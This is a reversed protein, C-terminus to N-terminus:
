ALQLPVVSTMRELGVAAVVESAVAIARPDEMLFVLSNFREDAGFGVLWARLQRRDPFGLLLHVAEWGASRILLVDPHHLGAVAGSAGGAVRVGYRMGAGSEVREDHAVMERETLVRGAGLRGGLVDVTLWGVMVARRVGAAVLVSDPLDSGVSALGARTVVFCDETAPLLRVRALLEEAVLGWILASTVDRDAGLLRRIQGFLVLRQSAAFGVVRRGLEDMV